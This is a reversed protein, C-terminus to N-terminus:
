RELRARGVVVAGLLRQWGDDRVKKVILFEISQTHHYGCDFHRRAYHCRERLGPTNRHRWVQRDNNCHWFTDHTAGALSRLRRLGHDHRLGGTFQRALIVMSAGSFGGCAPHHWTPGRTDIDFRQRELGQRQAHTAGIDGVIIRGARVLKREEDTLHNLIRM